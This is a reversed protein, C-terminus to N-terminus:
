IGLLVAILVEFRVILTGIKVLDCKKLQIAASQTASVFAAM